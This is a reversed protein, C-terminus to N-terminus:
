EHTRMREHLHKIVVFVITYVLLYILTLLVFVGLVRVFPVPFVYFYAIKAGLCCCNQAHTLLLQLVEQRKQLELEKALREEELRRREDDRTKRESRRKLWALRQPGYPRRSSEIATDLVSPTSPAPAVAPPLWPSFLVVVVVTSCDCQPLM